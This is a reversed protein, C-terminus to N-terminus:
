NEMYFYGGSGFARAAAHKYYFMISKALTGALAPAFARALHHLRNHAITKSKSPNISKKITVITNQVV